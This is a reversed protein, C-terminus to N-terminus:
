RKLIEKRTKLNEKRFILIDLFDDEELCDFFNSVMLEGVGEMSFGKKTGEEDGTDM